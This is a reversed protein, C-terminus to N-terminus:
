YLALLTELLNLDFGSEAFIAKVIAVVINAV